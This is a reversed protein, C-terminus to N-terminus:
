SNRGAAGMPRSSSRPKNSAPPRRPFPSDSAMPRGPAGPIGVGLTSSSSENLRPFSAGPVYLLAGGGAVAFQGAGSEFDENPMNASQMVGDLVSIGAGAITLGALDFPAAMM